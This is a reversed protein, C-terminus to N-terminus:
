FKMKGLNEVISSLLEPSSGLRLSKKMRNSLDIYKQM